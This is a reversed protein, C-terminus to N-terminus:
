SPERPRGGPRDDDKRSRGPRLFGHVEGPEVTLGLEDLARTAGFSKVLGSVSTATATGVRRQAAPERAARREETTVTGTPM